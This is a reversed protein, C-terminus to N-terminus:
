INFAASPHSMQMNAISKDGGGGGRLVDDLMMFCPWSDWGCIRNLSRSTSGTATIVDCASSGAGGGGEKGGEKRGEKGGELLLQGGMAANM